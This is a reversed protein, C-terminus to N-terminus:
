EEFDEIGKLVKGEAPNFAELAAQNTFWILGGRPGWAQINDAGEYGGDPGFINIRGIPNQSWVGIFNTGAPDVPSTMAGLFVNTTSYVRVEVSPGGFITITNFGVASKEDTFILDLSDIPINTIVSDSVVGFAPASLAFLGGVGRPNEDTPNGGGLNSQVRLNPLGTMGVPFPFGNPLNPM